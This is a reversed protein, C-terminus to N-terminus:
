SFIMEPDVVAPSLVDNPIAGDGAETKGSMSLISWGAKNSGESGADRRHEGTWLQTVPARRSYM